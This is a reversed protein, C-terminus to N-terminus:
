SEQQIAADVGCGVSAIVITDVEEELVEHVKRGSAGGAIKTRQGASHKPCKRQIHGRRGCRHCEASRFRCSDPKHRGGCRFCDASGEWKESDQGRRVANTKACEAGTDGSAAVGVTISQAERGSAFVAANSTKQLERLNTQAAEDALAMALAGQLDLTKQELLHRQIHDNNVGCVLWDRLMTDCTGDFNCYKAARRLRAMFETVSEEPKRVVNFFKFREVIESPKPEVYDQLLRCLEDYSKASPKDPHALNSLLHYCERGCVSLLPAKKKDEDTTENVVFLQQLREQYQSWITGADPIFAEIRGFGEM